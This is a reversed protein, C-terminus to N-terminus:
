RVAALDVSRGTRLARGVVIDLGETRMRTELYLVADLCALMPYAIANIVLWSAAAGYRLLDEDTNPAVLEVVAIAGYVLAIRIALWAFYGVLRIWTARLVGRSGLVVGRGLAGFVGRRDIVLAQVALGFMGYLFLWPLLAVFAGGGVVLAVLTATVLIAPLRRAFGRWVARAPPTTGVLAPGAAVASLGGLTALIFAETAFGLSFTLWFRGLQDAYPLYFPPDAALPRRLSYLLAQEAASLVFGAFIFTGARERLLVVAADLLEGLTLPRLPM